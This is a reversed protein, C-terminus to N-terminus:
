ERLLPDRNAANALVTPYVSGARGQRESSQDAGIL